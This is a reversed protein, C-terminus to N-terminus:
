EMECLESDCLKYLFTIFIVNNCIIEHNTAWLYRDDYAGIIFAM